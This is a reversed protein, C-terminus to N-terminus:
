NIRVLRTKRKSQTTEAQSTKSRSITSESTEGISNGLLNSVLLDVADRESHDLRVSADTTIHPESDIKETESLTCPDGTESGVSSSKAETPIATAKSSISTPYHSYRYHSTPIKEQTSTKSSQTSTESANSAKPTEPAIKAKSTVSKPSSKQPPLVSSQIISSSLDLGVRVRVFLM